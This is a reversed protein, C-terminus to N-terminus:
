WQEDEETETEKAEPLNAELAEVRKTLAEMRSAISDIWKLLSKLSLGVDLKKIDEKAREKESM